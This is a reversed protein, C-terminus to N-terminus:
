IDNASYLTNVIDFHKLRLQMVHQKGVELRM